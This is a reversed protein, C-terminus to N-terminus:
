KWKDPRQIVFGSKTIIKEPLLNNSLKEEGIHYVGSANQKLEYSHREPPFAVLVSKTPFLKRIAVIPATLDADATILIAVDFSNQFADVLLETAINVDTKKENSIFSTFGCNECTRLEAQYRGYFISLESLTNLADLFLSQRRQKSLPKSIRSTFYKTHVLTEGQKLLSVALKQLDLWLYKKWGKQLLGFYLNFGDIYVIVKKQQLSM